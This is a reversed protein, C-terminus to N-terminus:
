GIKVSNLADPMAITVVAPSTEAGEGLLDFGSERLRTRLWGSLEVLDAFRKEWPVRKIAANLAHLLNSSFTFPVGQQAAYQSLDLYRPLCPAVHRPLPAPTGGAAGP